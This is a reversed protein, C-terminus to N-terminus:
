SPRASPRSASFDCCRSQPLPCCLLPPPDGPTLCCVAPPEATSGTCLRDSLTSTGAPSHSVLLMLCHGIVIPFVPLAAAPATGGLAPTRVTGGRAMRHTSLYKGRVASSTTGWGKKSCTALRATPTRIQREAVVGGVVAACWGYPPLTGGQMDTAECVRVVCWRRGAGYGHM